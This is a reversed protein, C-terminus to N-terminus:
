FPLDDEDMDDFTDMDEVEIDRCWCYKEPFPCEDPEYSCFELHSEGEGTYVLEMNWEDRLVKYKEETPLGEPFDPYFCYAALLRKMEDYLLTIQHENLRNVPPFSEQKIGVIFSLKKAKGHLFREVDAFMKLEEPLSEEDFESVANPDPLDQASSRLQEALQIVYNDLNEPTPM